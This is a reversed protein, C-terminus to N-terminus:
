QECSAELGLGLYLIKNPVDGRVCRDESFRQDAHINRSRISDISALHKLADWAMRAQSPLQESFVNYYYENLLMCARPGTSLKFVAINEFGAGRAEFRLGDATWRRLDLPCGHDYWIGHTTLVLKGTPSLVRKLEVLVQHPDPVHELVQTCLVLDVSRDPLSIRGTTSILYDLDPSPLFDARLYRGSPFLARYPSGGCGYDLITRYSGDCANKLFLLLDAFHIYDIHSPEPSIRSQIYRAASIALAQQNATKDPLNTREHSANM